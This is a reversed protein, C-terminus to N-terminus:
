SLGLGQLAQNALAVVGEGMVSGTGAIAVTKAKELLQRLVGGQVEPEDAVRRLQSVVEAAETSTQDDLGLLGSRLLGDLNDAVPLVLKRNDQSMMVTTTQVAGPSHTAVNHGTGTVTVNTVHSPVNAAFPSEDNVSRGSEVVKEGRTTISPILVGVLENVEPGTIYGEAKLWESAASIEDDTFSHGFYTGYQSEAFDKLYPSPIGRLTSDHLWKLVADRAAKRRGLLDGRLNRMGEILDIGAPTVTCSYGSWALTKQLHILGYQELADLTGAAARAAEQELGEFLEGLSVFVGPMAGGNDAIWDLLRLREQVSPSLGWGQSLDM